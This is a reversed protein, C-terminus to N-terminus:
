YNSCINYPWFTKIIIAIKVITTIVIVTVTIITILLTTIMMAIKEEIKLHSGKDPLESLSCPGEM